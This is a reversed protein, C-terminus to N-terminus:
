PVFSVGARFAAFDTNISNDALVGYLYNVEMFWSMMESLSTQLGFGIRICPSVSFKGEGTKPALPYNVKSESTMSVLGGAGISVYPHSKTKGDEDNGFLSYNVNGTVVIISSSAGEVSMGRKDMKIKQFFRDENFPFYNFEAAIILDHQESLRYVAEGEAHIGMKWYDYFSIPGRPDSIGGSIKILKLSDFQAILLMPMLFIQVLIVAIINKNKM